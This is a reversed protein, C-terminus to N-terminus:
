ESSLQGDPGSPTPRKKWNVKGESSFSWSLQTVVVAVFAQEQSVAERERARQVLQEPSFVPEFLYPEPENTLWDEADISLTWQQEVNEVQQRLRAFLM